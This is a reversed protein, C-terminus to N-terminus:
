FNTGTGLLRKSTGVEYYNPNDGGDDVMKSSNADSELITDIEFVNAPASDATDGQCAFRYNLNVFNGQVVANITGAKPDIPLSTIPAGGSMTTFDLPIWGSGDINGPTLSFKCLSAGGLPDFTSGSTVDAGEGGIFGGSCLSDITTATYFIKAETNGTTLCLGPLQASLAEDPTTNQQVFLEVTKKLSDLDAIRSADRSKKLIEAPRIIIVLITLLIGLVGIVIILELLSFGAMNTIQKQTKIM